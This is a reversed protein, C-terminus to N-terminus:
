ARASHAVCPTAEHVREQNRIAKAACYLDTVKFEPERLPSMIWETENGNDILISRCGARHGAEVDDLIDGIMWSASLNIGHQAAAALLMGPKPKRCRCDIAYRAVAGNPFHPCYYFGSLTVGENKLLGSLRQEVAGLAEEAFLGRAVGAQNSVVFLAYGMSTMDRLGAGARASLEILDPDINHPVDNILTGDKDLFIARM